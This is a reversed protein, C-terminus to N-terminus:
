KHAQSALLINLHSDSQEIQSLDNMFEIVQINIETFKM